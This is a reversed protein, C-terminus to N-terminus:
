SNKNSELFVVGLNKKDMKELINTQVLWKWRLQHSFFEKETQDLLGHLKIAVCYKYHDTMELDDELYRFINTIAQKRYSKKVDQLNFLALKIASSINAM